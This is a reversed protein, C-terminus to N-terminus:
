NNSDYGNRASQQFLVMLSNRVGKFGSLRDRGHWSQRNPSDSVAFAYASNPKFAFRKVEDFDSGFLGRRRVFLSTGLDLTSEDAPLYFQMTVIKNLGDPHPKIRYDESDRFLIIDYVCDIDSVNSESVGFRAALDPAM